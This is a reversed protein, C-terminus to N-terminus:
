ATEGSLISPRSARRLEEPVIVPVMAWQEPTLALRDFIRNLVSAIVVGQSEALAVRAMEAKSDLCVKALRGVRDLWEGVAGIVVMNVRGSDDLAEDKLRQLVLDADQTASILAAAADRPPLGRGDAAAEAALIRRQRSMEVQPARGGHMPCVGGGRVLRKCREGTRKSVATCREGKVTM